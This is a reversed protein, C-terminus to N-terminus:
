DDVKERRSRKRKRRSRKRLFNEGELNEVRGRQSANTNLRVSWAAHVFSSSSTVCPIKHRSIVSTM